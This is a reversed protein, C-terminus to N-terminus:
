GRPYTPRLGTRHHYVWTAGPHEAMMRVIPKQWEALQVGMRDLAALVTSADPTVDVTLRPAPTEDM